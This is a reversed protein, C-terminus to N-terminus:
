TSASVPKDGFPGSPGNAGPQIADTAEDLVGLINTEHVFCLEDKFLPSEDKNHLKIGERFIVMDGVKCIDPKVNPGVSLVRSYPNAPSKSTLAVHILGMRSPLPERKVLVWITKAKTRLIAEDFENM